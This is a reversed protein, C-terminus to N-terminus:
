KIKSHIDQLKIKKFLYLNNRKKNKQKNKDLLQKKTRSYKQFNQFVINISNRLFNFEEDLPIRYELLIQGYHRDTIFTKGYNRLTFVLTFDKKFAKM